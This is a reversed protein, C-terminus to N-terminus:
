QRQPGTMPMKDLVDQVKAPVDSDSPVSDLCGLFQQLWEGKKSVKMQQNQALLDGAASDEELKFCERLKKALKLVEKENASLASSAAQLQVAATPMPRLPADQLWPFVSSFVQLNYANKIVAFIVVDFRGEFEGGAGLLRRFLDAIRAADNKFAGCGYAGLVLARHGHHAAAWLMSRMKETTLRRDFPGRYHDRDRLDQAASSVVSVNFRQAAPLLQGERGRSVFVDPSYVVGAEAFPYITKARPLLADFEPMRYDEPLRRPWLSLPLSSCRLLDEEQSGPKQCWAGGCNYENAMNLVAVNQWGQRLLAAGARFTDMEVTGFITSGVNQGSALPSLAPAPSSCTFAYSACAMCSEKEADPLGLLDNM